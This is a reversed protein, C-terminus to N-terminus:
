SVRIGLLTIEQTQSTIKYKIINRTFFFFNLLKSGAPRTHRRLDGVAIVCAAINSRSLCPSLLRRARIQPLHSGGMPPFTKLNAGSDRECGAGLAYRRSVGWRLFQSARGGGVHARMVSSSCLGRWLGCGSVFIRLSWRLASVVTQSSSLTEKKKHHLFLLSLVTRDRSFHLYRYRIAVQHPDGRARAAENQNTRCRPRVQMLVPTELAFISPRWPCWRRYKSVLCCYRTSMVKVILTGFSPPWCCSSSSVSSAGGTISRGTYEREVTPFSPRVFMFIRM